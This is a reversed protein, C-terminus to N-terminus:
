KQVNEKFRYSRIPLFKNALRCNFRNNFLTSNGQLISRYSCSDVPCFTGRSGYSDNHRGTWSRLSSYLSPSRFLTFCFPLSFPSLCPLNRRFFLSRPAFNWSLSLEWTDRRPLFEQQSVYVTSQLGYVVRSNSYFCRCHRRRRRRYLRSVRLCLFIRPSFLSCSLHASGSTLFRFAFPSSPLLDPPPPSRHRLKWMSRNCTCCNNWFVRSSVAIEERQREEERYVRQVFRTSLTKAGSANNSEYANGPQAEKGGNNCSRHTCTRGPYVTLPLLTPLLSDLSSYNVIRRFRSAVDHLLLFPWARNPLRALCLFRM